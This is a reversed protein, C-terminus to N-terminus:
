FGLCQVLPCSHSNIHPNAGKKTIEALTLNQALWYITIIGPKRIYSAAKQGTVKDELQASLMTCKLSFATLNKEKVRSVDLPFAKQIWLWCRRYGSGIGRSLLISWIPDAARSFCKVQQIPWGNHIVLTMSERSETIHHIYNCMIICLDIIYRISDHIM